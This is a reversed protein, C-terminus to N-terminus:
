RRAVRASIPMWDITRLPAALTKVFTLMIGSTLVPLRKLVPSSGGRPSNAKLKAHVLRRPYSSYSPNGLSSRSRNTKRSPPLSPSGM